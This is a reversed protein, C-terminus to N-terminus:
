CTWTKIDFYLIQGDCLSVAGRGAKRGDLAVSAIPSELGICSVKGTLNPATPNIHGVCSKTAFVTFSGMHVLQQIGGEEQTVQLQAKLAGSLRGDRGGVLVLREGSITAAIACNHRRPGGPSVQFADSQALSLILPEYSLHRLVPESKPDGLPEGGQQALAPSPEKRKASLIHILAIGDEDTTLVAFVDGQPFVSLSLVPAAHATKLAVSSVPNSVSRAELLGERSCVVLLVSSLALSFAEDRRRTLSVLEIFSPEATFEIRRVAFLIDHANGVAPEQLQPSAAPQAKQNELKKLLDDVAQQLRLLRDEPSYTAFNSHSPPKFNLAEPAASLCTPAGPQLFPVGRTNTRLSCTPERPVAAIEAGQIQRSLFCSTLFAFLLPLNDM